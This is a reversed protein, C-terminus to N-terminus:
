KVDFFISVVNLGDENSYNYDDAYQKVMFIGLGGIPREEISAHLNPDEKAFPNFAQGSDKLVLKLKDDTILLSCDVQGSNKYAYNCVNVFLEELVIEFRMIDNMSVDNAELQEVFYDRVKDLNTIIAEVQINNEKM